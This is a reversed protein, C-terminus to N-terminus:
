PPLPNKKLKGGPSSFCLSLPVQEEVTAYVVANTVIPKGIYCSTDTGVLLVKHLAIQLEWSSFNIYCYFLFLLM